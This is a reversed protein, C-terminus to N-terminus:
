YSLPTPALANDTHGIAAQPHWCTLATFEHLLEFERGLGAQGHLAPAARDVAQVRICGHISLPLRQRM